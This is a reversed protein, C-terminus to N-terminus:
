LTKADDDRNSGLCAKVAARRGLLQFKFIIQTALFAVLLFGAGVKVADEWLSLEQAHVVGSGLSRRMHVAASNISSVSLLKISSAQESNPPAKTWPVYAVVCRDHARSEGTRPNVGSFEIYQDFTRVDGMGYLPEIAQLAEESQNSDQAQVVTGLRALAIEAEKDQRNWAGNGRSGKDDGYYVGVISRSLTYFDYGHTWLRSGRNFEEGTFVHRLNPDAPM